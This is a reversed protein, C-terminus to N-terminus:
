RRRPALRGLAKRRGPIRYEELFEIFGEPFRGDERCGEIIAAAQARLARAENLAQRNRTSGWVNLWAFCRGRIELLERKSEDLTACHQRVAIACRQRALARRLLPLSSM